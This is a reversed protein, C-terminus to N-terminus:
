PTRFKGAVEAPIPLARMRLPDDPHPAAFVRRENGEVALADDKFIRHRVDFTSRRFEVLTTELEAQDGYRLPAKFNAGSEVLALGIIGLRANLDHRPIGLAAEFLRWTGTDFFEFVRPNWIIGAPDCHAWEIAIPMRHSAYTM